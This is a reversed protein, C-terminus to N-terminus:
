LTGVLSRLGSTCQLTVKKMVQWSQLTHPRFNSMFSQKDYAMLALLQVTSLSAVYVWVIGDMEISRQHHKKCSPHNCYSNLVYVWAWVHCSSQMKQTTSTINITPILVADSAAETKICLKYSASDRIEHLSKLSVQRVLWLWVMYHHFLHLCIM